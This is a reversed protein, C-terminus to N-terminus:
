RRAGILCTEHGFLNNCELHTVQGPEFVRGEVQYFVESCHKGCRECNGYRDSAFGTNKIRYVYSGVSPLPGFRKGAGSQPSNAQTTM